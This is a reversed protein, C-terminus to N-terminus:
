REFLMKAEDIDLWGREVPDIGSLETSWTTPVTKSPIVSQAPRQMHTSPPTIGNFANGPTSFRDNPSTTNAATRALIDLPHGFSTGFTEPLPAGTTQGGLSKRMSALTKELEDLRRFYALAFHSHRHSLSTSMLIRKADSTPSKM